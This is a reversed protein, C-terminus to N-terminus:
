IEQDVGLGGNDKAEVSQRPAQATGIVLGDLMGLPRHAQAGRLGKDVMGRTGGAQGTEEGAPGLVGDRVGAFRDLAVTVEGERVADERYDAGAETTAVLGRLRHLLQDARRRAKADPGQALDPEGVGLAEFGVEIQQSRSAQGLSRRPDPWPESRRM